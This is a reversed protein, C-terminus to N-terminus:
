TKMRGTNERYNIANTWFYNSKHDMVGSEHIREKRTRQIAVKMSINILRVTLILINQM